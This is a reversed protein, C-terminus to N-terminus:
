VARVGRESRDKPRTPVSFSYNLELIKGWSEISPCISAHIIKKKKKKSLSAHTQWMVDCTVGGTDSSASERGGMVERRVLRM